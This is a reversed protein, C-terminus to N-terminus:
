APSAQGMDRTSPPDAGPRAVTLASSRAAWELATRVDDLSAAALRDRAGRGLLGARLLADILGSMFADGAGVTDVVEAPVAPVEVIGAGCAAVAGQAGRTVVVLAPGGPALLAVATDVPDGGGTLWALDEDSAKVVDALACWQMIRDRAAAPDDVLTARVNPDYSVTAGPRRAAVLARVAEAGPDLLTAISGTHVHGAPPPTVDAPLAWRLDFTYTAGAREDLEALATSTRASDPDGDSGSVVSGPALAVDSAALHAAIRDGRADDAFRTLFAVSRGLRGLGVAVNLPSGGVHEHADGGRPAVIDVLSEGVVLVSEDAPASGATLATEERGDM